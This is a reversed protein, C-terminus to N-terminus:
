GRRDAVRRRPFNSRIYPTRTAWTRTPAAFFVLDRRKLRKLENEVSRRGTNFLDRLKENTNVGESIAALVAEERLETLLKTPYTMM